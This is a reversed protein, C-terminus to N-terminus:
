PVVPMGGEFELTDAEQPAIMESNTTETASANDLGDSLPNSITEFMTQLIFIVVAVVAVIALIILIIAAPGIKKKHTPQVDNDVPTSM